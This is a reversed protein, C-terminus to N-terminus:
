LGRFFGFYGAFVIMLIFALGALASLWIHRRGNPYLRKYENIIFFFKRGEIYYNVQPLPSRKRNIDNIIQAYLMHTAVFFIQATLLAVIAVVTNVIM